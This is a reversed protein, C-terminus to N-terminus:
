LKYSGISFRPQSQAIVISGAPQCYHQAEDRDVM